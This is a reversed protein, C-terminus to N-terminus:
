FVQDYREKRAAEAVQFRHEWDACNYPVACQHAPPVFSPHQPAGAPRFRRWWHGRAGPQGGQVLM